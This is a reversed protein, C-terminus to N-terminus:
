LQTQNLEVMFNGSTGAAGPKDFIALLNSAYFAAGIEFPIIPSFGHGAEAIRLCPKQNQAKSRASVTGITGAPREGTVAGAIEKITDQV